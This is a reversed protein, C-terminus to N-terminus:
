AINAETFTSKSPDNAKSENRLPTHKNQDLASAYDHLAFIIYLEAVSVVCHFNLLYKYEFIDILLINNWTFKM